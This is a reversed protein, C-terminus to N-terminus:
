KRQQETNRAQEHEQKQEQEYKSRRRMKGWLLITQAYHKRLKMWASIKEAPYLQDWMCTM